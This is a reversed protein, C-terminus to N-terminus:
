EKGPIKKETDQAHGEAPSTPSVALEAPEEWPKQPRILM